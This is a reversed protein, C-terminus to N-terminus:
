PSVLQRCRGGDGCMHASVVLSPSGRASSARNETFLGGLARPFRLSGALMEDPVDLSLGRASPPAEEGRGLQSIRAELLRVRM